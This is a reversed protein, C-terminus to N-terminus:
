KRTIKDLYGMAFASLVFTIHILLYWMIKDNAINEANMFVKLLHISSIAVISAAVKNKLSGADMKGLWNLKESNEGVDLQSVFNEYGSFMVMILLGGVLTIDILSLTILVLDVEKISFINPIIHFIEQFFKIGLAFLILSLGLYIPAMIWRSAYMLREFVKEM